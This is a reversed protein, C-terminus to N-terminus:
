RHQVIIIISIFITDNIMASAYVDTFHNRAFILTTVASSKTKIIKEFYSQETFAISRSEIRFLFLMSHHDYDYYALAVCRSETSIELARHRPM